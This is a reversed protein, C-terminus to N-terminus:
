FTINCGEYLNNFANLYDEETTFKNNVSFTKFRNVIGNDLTNIVSEFSDYKMIHMFKNRFNMLLEFNLNEKDNLVKLDMLLDIKNQFNIKGKDGFLRTKNENGHIGLELLLIGNISEEMVLSCELIRGRLEINM